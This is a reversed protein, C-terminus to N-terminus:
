PTLLVAPLPHLHVAWSLQAGLLPGLDSAQYKPPCVQATIFFKPSQEPLLPPGVPSLTCVQGMLPFWTHCLHCVSSPTPVWTLHLPGPVTPGVLSSLLWGAEGGSGM